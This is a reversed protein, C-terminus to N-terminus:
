NLVNEKELPGRDGIVPSADTAINNLGDEITDPYKSVLSREM